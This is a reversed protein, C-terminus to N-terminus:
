LEVIGNAYHQIKNNSKIIAEGISNVGLFTGRIVNSKNHFFIESDLHACSAMWNRIIDDDNMTFDLFKIFESLLLERNQVQKSEILMSSMSNILNNDLESSELNVNIGVGINYITKQKNIKTEILIGSIKKDNVVIDNPWKIQANINSVKNIAMCTALSARIHILNDIHEKKFGVSFTLSKEKVSYWQSGRRGKGKTQSDAVIICHKQDNIKNWLDENTSQTEKIYEINKGFIQNDLYKLYKSINFQM